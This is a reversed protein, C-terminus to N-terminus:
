PKPARFEYRGAGIKVAVKTADNETVRTVDKGPKLKKGDLSVSAIEKAPVLVTATTNPPVEVTLTLEGGTIRWESRIPGYPSDFRCKTWELPCGPWVGPKVIFNQYGQGDAGPRIGALGEFFWAGLHLYSSHSRSLKGEWDEWLTTAGNKLMHGWSPYDEKTAMTYLLDNRDSEILQRVVFSGGTIGAWFHGKRNLLIEDELRQVVAARLDQPPVDALLALSLYAQFGNVYSADAANFFERHIAARVTNARVNWAAAQERRGLAEAIRAATALNYVWYCNNFCLTERTDGNVGAAGPWLWDGLFDWEGGYRRLLDDQSKSELFALWREITPFMEDLIRRDGYRQYLEWPLTVCFGSWGPGGGGWYTPATYPLNGAAIKGSAGAEGEKKGVGWAAEKGQVDRWDEAWKTYFAGLAYHDLATATTAHADGGYGMRERQACDVVYGGLSLNEFTWLIARHISNLLPHSCEFETTRNYDTRVLWGRIDEPKPPQRLGELQVWRAVSYNFRSRFTGEGKPGLVIVSHLNHTMPQDERESFKLEIKDGPQGRFKAEIIGTFIEGMDFRYVGRKPEALAVPRIEKVARNPEVKQASLALQPTFTKVPRWLSDNFEPKAWDLQEKEADYREGGFHMFDWVGLTTNPSPFWRWSEDTIVRQTKGGPFELDAQAIVIPSAPKDPTRYPPFISWSHGLWLALVNRGPQLLKAIDYTVYRARKTHDTAAPAFLDEGVRWGNVYLEHYGVSAVHIFARTPAADLNFPKRLWPDPNANDGPPSGAKREFNMQTGIWTASWDAASMLGVCWRAVPSWDSARGREDKVRVRWLCVLNPHLPQGSYSILQSQDSEVWGSDWLDPKRNLAPESSAVAVQYAAQRQGRADPNTATLKWSFRPQAVDLGVPNVLYECTLSGPSISATSAAFCRVVCPVLAVLATLLWRISAFTM